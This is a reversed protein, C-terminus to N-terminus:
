RRRALTSRSRESSASFTPSRLTLNVCSSSASNDTRRTFDHSAHHNFKALLAHDFIFATINLGVRRPQMLKKFPKFSRCEITGLILFILVIKENGQKPFYRAICYGDNSLPCFQRRDIHVFRGLRGTSVAFVGGSIIM